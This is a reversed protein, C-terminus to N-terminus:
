VGRGFLWSYNQYDKQTPNQDIGKGTYPNKMSPLSPNFSESSDRYENTSVSWSSLMAKTQETVKELQTFSSEGVYISMAMAM